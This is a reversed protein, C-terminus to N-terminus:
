KNAATKRELFLLMCVMVIAPIGMGAATMFFWPYGFADVVVGSFGGFFKGPLTMLSSFLAYQTATYASSTLSSLYAIFAVVALGGSLNDASVVFALQWINPAGAAMWAFLLNTVAVMCAGILLIPRIGYKVVLIGGVASGAITMFFGFIKTVDAIQTKTFGMDLYFPIAMVGMVIDSVRYMAILLLMLIAYWGNRMFFDRFPAVVAAALWVMIKQGYYLQTINHQATEILYEPKVVTVNVQPEKIFVTTAVGILMLSSMIFYAIPWSFYEAMYLAGAGAMLLASRYGFVYGATMAAQYEKQAAEIRYADISIDQTASSFAVFLGFIALMKPNLDPQTLAMMILGFAVGLQGVLMWSRRQGFRNYLYPLRISDVVPAWFIKISYTIGIWSFFGITTRSLGSEALWANLTSFVLLFPLGASFGLFFMTAVKPRTYVALAEGWSRQVKFLVRM